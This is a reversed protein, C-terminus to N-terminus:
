EKAIATAYTACFVREADNKYLVELCENLTSGTTLIDDILLINKGTIEYTPNIDFAGEVNKKRKSKPLTHQSENDRIKLLIPQFEIGFLDALHKALLQSQNYGRESFRKKTFPVCTIIDFHKDANFYDSYEISIVNKMSIAMNESYNPNNNFKFSLMAKKNLGSYKFPSINCSKYLSTVINDYQLDNKCKDCAEHNKFIVENCYPCRAPFFANLISKYISKLVM